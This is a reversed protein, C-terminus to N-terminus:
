SSSETGKSIYLNGVGGPVSGLFRNFRERDEDYESEQSNHMAYSNGKMSGLNYKINVVGDDTVEASQALLPFSKLLERKITVEDIDEDKYNKLRDKLEEVIKINEMMEKDNYQLDNTITEPNRFDNHQLDNTTTYNTNNQNQRIPRGYIDYGDNEFSVGHKQLHREAAKKRVLYKFADQDYLNGCDRRRKREEELAYNMALMGMAEFGEQMNADAPVIADHEAKVQLYHQKYKLSTDVPVMNALRNMKAVFVPDYDIQEVPVDKGTYTEILEQEDYDDGLYNHVMKAIKINFNIRNQRAEEEMERAAQIAEQEAKTMGYGTYPSGYFNPGMNGYGPGNSRIVANEALEDQMKFWLESEIKDLKEEWGVSPMFEGGLSFPQIHIVNPQQQQQYYPNNGYYTPPNLNQIGQNEYPNGYQPYYGNQQQYYPNGYNGQIQQNYNYGINPNYQNQQAQQQMAQQNNLYEMYYPNQFRMDNINEVQQSYPNYQSGPQAYKQYYDAPQQSAYGSAGFSAMQAAEQEQNFPPSAYTTAEGTFFDERRM